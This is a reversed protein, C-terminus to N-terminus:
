SFNFSFDKLGYIGKDSDKETSKRAKAVIRRFCLGTTHIPPKIHPASKPALAKSLQSRM